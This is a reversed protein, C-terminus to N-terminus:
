NLKRAALAAACIALALTHGQGSPLLTDTDPNVIVYEFLGNQARGVYRGPCGVRSLIKWASSIDRGPEGAEDKNWLGAKILQTRM